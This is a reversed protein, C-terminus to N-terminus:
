AAAALLARTRRGCRMEPSRIPGSEKMRRAVRDGAMQAHRGQVTSLSRSRGETAEMRMAKSRRCMIMAVVHALVANVLPSAQDAPVLSVGVQRCRLAVVPPTRQTSVRREVRAGAPFRGAATAGYGCSTSGFVGRPINPRHADRM